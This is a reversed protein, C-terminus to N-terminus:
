SRRCPHCTMMTPLPVRGIGHFSLDHGTSHHLLLSTTTDRLNLLPTIPLTTM